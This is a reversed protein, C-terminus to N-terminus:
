CWRWKYWLALFERRKIHWGLLMKHAVRYFSIFRTCTKVVFSLASDVFQSLCCGRVQKELDAKKKVNAEYKEQLRALKDQVERLASRKKELGQFHQLTLTLANFELLRRTWAGLKRHVKQLFSLNGKGGYRCGAWGRCSQASREKTGGSPGGQFFLLGFRNSM